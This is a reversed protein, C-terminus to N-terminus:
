RKVRSLPVYITAIDKTEKPLKLDIVV